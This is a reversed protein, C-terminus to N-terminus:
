GAFSAPAPREPRMERMEPLCGPEKVKMLRRAAAEVRAQIVYDLAGLDEVAVDVNKAGLRELAGEISARIQDGFLNAVSSKLQISNGGGAKKKMTVVIDSKQEARGVQTENLEAM